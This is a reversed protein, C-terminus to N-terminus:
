GLTESLRKIMSAFAVRDQEPQKGLANEIKQLPDNQLAQQGEETLLSVSSRADRENVEQRILGRNQLTRLARSVPATTLGVARAVAQVTRQTEDCGALHRMITWQLPQIDRSRRETYADRVLREM